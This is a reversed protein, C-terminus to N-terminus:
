WRRELLRKLEWENERNRERQEFDDMRRQANWADWENLQQRWELEQQRLELQWQRLEREEDTSYQALAGSCFAIGVAAFLLLRGTM